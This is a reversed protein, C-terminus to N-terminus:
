LSRGERKVEKLQFFEEQQNILDKELFSPHYTNGEEVDSSYLSQQPKEASILCPRNIVGHSDTGEELGRFPNQSPEDNRNSINGQLDILM